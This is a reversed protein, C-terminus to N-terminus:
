NEGRPLFFHFNSVLCKIGAIPNKPNKKAIKGIANVLLIEQLQWVGLGLSWWFKTDQACILMIWEAIEM